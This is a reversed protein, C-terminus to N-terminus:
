LNDMSEQNILHQRYAKEFAELAAPDEKLLVAVDDKTIKKEFFRELGFM